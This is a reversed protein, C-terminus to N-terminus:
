ASQTQPHLATRWAFAGTVLSAQKAKSIARIEVWFPQFWLM